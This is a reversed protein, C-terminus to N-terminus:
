NSTSQYIPGTYVDLQDCSGDRLLDRGFRELEKWYNDKLQKNQPVVNKYSFTQEPDKSHNLEAAMQTLSLKQAKLMNQDAFHKSVQFERYM